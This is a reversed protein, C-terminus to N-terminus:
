PTKTLTKSVRKYLGRGIKKYSAASPKYVVWARGIKKGKIAGRGDNRELIEEVHSQSLGALDAAEGTGCVLDLIEDATMAVEHKSRSQKM